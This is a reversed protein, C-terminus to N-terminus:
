PAGADADAPPPPGAVTSALSTVDKSCVRNGQANAVCVLGDECDDDRYCDQGPGAADQKGACGHLVLLTVVGVLGRGFCM